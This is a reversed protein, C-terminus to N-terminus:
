APATGRRVEAKANLVFREVLAPSKVGRRLSVGSNVDVGFPEVTSIASELNDPTLGGALIVPTPAVAQRIARSVSWDHVKGTGGLRGETRSDLLIGDYHVALEVATEISVDDEVHVAKIIKLYPYSRRLAAIDGLPFGAHLQLHSAPVQKCLDSVSKLSDRHTVLVPSVFPPLARALEAARTPALADKSEYDLGVLFGAANAGVEIVIEVDAESTLGCIKVFM